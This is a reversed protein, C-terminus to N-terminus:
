RGAMMQGHDTDSNVWSLLEKRPIRVLRGIRRTPIGGTRTREYVFSVPVRLFDAAESATMLEPRRANM